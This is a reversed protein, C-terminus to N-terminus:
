IAETASEVPSLLFVGQGVLVHQESSTDEAVRLRAIAQNDKCTQM